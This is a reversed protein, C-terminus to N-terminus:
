ISFYPYLFVRQLQVDSNANGFEKVLKSNLTRNDRDNLLHGFATITAIKQNEDSINALISELMVDAREDVSIDRHISHIRVNGVYLPVRIYSSSIVEDSREYEKSLGEDRRKIKTVNEIEYWNKLIRDQNVRADSYLKEPTNGNDILSKVDRKAGLRMKKDSPYYVMDNLYEFKIGKSSAYNQAVNEHGANPKNILFTKVIEDDVGRDNLEDILSQYYLKAANHLGANGELLVTDPAIKQLALNLRGPGDLDFRGIGVMYIEAM